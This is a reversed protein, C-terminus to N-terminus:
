EVITGFIGVACFPVEDEFELVTPIWVECAGSLLIKIIKKDVKVHARPM